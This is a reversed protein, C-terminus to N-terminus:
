GFGRAKLHQKWNWDRLFFTKTAQYGMQYLRIKKDDSLDFETTTVQAHSLDIYIIRGQDSHRLHYRDRANAMTRLSPTFLDLINNIQPTTPTRDILRFGFTPWRPPMTASTRDYIWLPFNSLLGGDLIYADGLKEPKFFLPLSSSLRVAEAIKFDQYHQLNHQKLIDQRQSRQRHDLYDLDPNLDDPLVLMEGQTINSVVVKLERQPDKLKIDAFTNISRPQLTKAIWDRLPDSSYQGLQGTLLLSILIWLPNQLDNSPNGNFICSSTKQTLLRSYNMNGLIDELEAIAFDAALLAATLSGVSTGALKKWQIKLDECCRLAGLLAMGRVGGGEFIADACYYGDIPEPFRSWIDEQESATLRIGQNELVQPNIRM